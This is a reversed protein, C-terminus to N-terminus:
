WACHDDVSIFRVDRVAEVWKLGEPRRHTIKTGAFVRGKHLRWVIHGSPSVAIQSAPDGVKRWLVGKMEGIASYYLNDSKDTFWIHTGSLALSYINASATFESWNNALRYLTAESINKDSEATTSPIVQVAETSEPALNPSPESPFFDPLDVSESPTYPNFMSYFDDASDERPAHFSRSKKKMDMLTREAAKLLDEHTATDEPPKTASKVDLQEDPLQLNTPRCTSESSLNKVGDVCDEKATEEDKANYVTEILKDEGQDPPISAEGIKLSQFALEDLMVLESSNSVPLADRATIELKTESTIASDHEEKSKLLRDVSSM